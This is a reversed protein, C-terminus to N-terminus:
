GILCDHHGMNARAQNNAVRVDIAGHITDNLAERRRFLFLTILLLSKM